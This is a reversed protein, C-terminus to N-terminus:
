TACCMTFMYGGDVVWERIRHTVDYKGSYAGAGVALAEAPKLYKKFISSLFGDESAAGGGCRACKRGSDASEPSLAPVNSNATRYIESYSNKMYKFFKDFPNFRGPSVKHLQVYAPVQTNAYDISHPGTTIQATVFATDVVRMTVRFYLDFARRVSTVGASALDIEATFLGNSNNSLNFLATSVTKPKGRKEAPVSPNNHYDGAPFDNFESFELKFDNTTVSSYNVKSAASPPAANFVMYLKGNSNFVPYPTVLNTDSRTGNAKIDYSEGFYHNDSVIARLESNSSFLFIEKVVNYMKPFSDQIKLNLVWM